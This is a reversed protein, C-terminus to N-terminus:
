RKKKARPGRAPSTAGWVLQKESYNAKVLRKLVVAAKLFSAFGLAVLVWHVPIWYFSLWDAAFPSLFDLAFFLVGLSTWNVFSKFAGPLVIGASKKMLWVSALLM